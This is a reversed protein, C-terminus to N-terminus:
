QKLRLSSSHALGIDGTDEFKIKIFFPKIGKWNVSKIDLVVEVVHAPRNGGFLVRVGPKFINIARKTAREFIKLKRDNLTAAPKHSIHKSIIQYSIM